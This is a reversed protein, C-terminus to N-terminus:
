GRYIYRVEDKKQYGREILDTQKLKDVEIFGAKQHAKISAINDKKITAILSTLKYKDFILKAAIKVLGKKRYGKDIYIQFFGFDKYKPNLIVGTIGVKIKKDLLLTYYDSRKPNFFIKDKDKPLTEWYEEDFKGLTIENPRYNEQLYKLYSNIM